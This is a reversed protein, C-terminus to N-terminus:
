LPNGLGDIYEINKYNINQLEKIKNLIKTELELLAEQENEGMGFMDDYSATYSYYREKKDNNIKIKM